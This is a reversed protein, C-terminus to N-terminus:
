QEASVEDTPKGLEQFFEEVGNTRPFPSDPTPVELFECLPGWGDTVQYVLLREAAVTHKVQENHLEYATICHDRDDPTDRFRGHFTGDLIIKKGAMLQSRQLSEIDPTQPETAGPPFALNCAKFITNTMSRIWSQSDRVTLIVKAEPYFEILQQWFYASPWDTTAQYNALLAPWDPSNGDAYGSWINAHEPHRFLERQHYCNSFGLQELAFKLSLTGTRGFGPCIVKLSM